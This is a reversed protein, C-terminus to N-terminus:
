FRWLTKNRNHAALMQGSFFKWWRSYHLPCSDSYDWWQGSVRMVLWVVSPPVAFTKQKTKRGWKSSRRWSELTCDSLLPYYLMYRLGWFFLSQKAELNDLISLFVNKIGVLIQIDTSYQSNLARFLQFTKNSISLNLSLQQIGQQHGPPGPLLLLPSAWTRHLASRREEGAPCM